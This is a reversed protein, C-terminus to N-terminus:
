GTGGYGCATRALRFLALIIGVLLTLPWAAAAIPGAVLFLLARRANQQRDLAAWGKLPKGYDILAATGFVFAACLSLTVLVITVAVYLDSM